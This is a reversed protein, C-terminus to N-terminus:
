LVPLTSSLLALRRLTARAQAASSLHCIAISVPRFNTRATTMKTLFPFRLFDEAAMRGVKRRFRKKKMKGERTTEGFMLLERRAAVAQLVDGEDEGGGKLGGHGRGFFEGVWWCDVSSRGDGGGGRSPRQRGKGIQGVEDGLAKTVIDTLEGVPAVSQTQLIRSGYLAQVLFHLPVDKQRLIRKGPHLGIQPPTKTGIWQKLYLM